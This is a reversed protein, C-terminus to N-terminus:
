KDELLRSGVYALTMVAWIPITMLALLVGFISDLIEPQPFDNYNDDGYLLWTVFTFLPLLTLGTYAMWPLSRLHTCYFRWLFSPPKKNKEPSILSHLERSRPIVLDSINCYWLMNESKPWWWLARPNLPPVKGHKVELTMVVGNIFWNLTTEIVVTLAFAGAVTTPFDWMTPDDKNYFSLTCLAFNVGFCVMSSVVTHKMIWYWQESTIRDTPVQCKEYWANEGGEKDDNRILPDFANQNM